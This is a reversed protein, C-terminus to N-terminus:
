ANLREEFFDRMARWSRKDSQESYLIAPMASGDASRNTFSHVTNGYIIMQWDAGAARMEEEIAQRQSQPVLPDDGGTCVLVSTKVAGKEAPAKTDLAGHFSVAGLLDTGDRALELTTTGGFCFGVSFLQRANVLPSAALASLAAKARARLKPPDNRLAILLPLAEDLNAPQLRDGFMDAAFAVYGLEALMKSREIAHEGLGFAEHIVLVGPRPDTQADDYALLGLCSTSGDQYRVDETKIGM